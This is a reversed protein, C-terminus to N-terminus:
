QPPRPPLHDPNYVSGVIIPRDPDGGEFSVVVEWGIRPVIVTGSEAGAHLAGVRVWCSSDGSRSGTRDWHFQVKVRGYKDTLIEEGPPGAVVATQIGPIVPKPTARAPRFPLGAPICEFTNRYDFLGGVIARARHSVGTLVYPGDADFHRSLQFRHGATLGPASSGGAVVLAASAEEQMRIEVTRRGDELIKALEEPREAGGPDVGDFRGAYGGPFDYHELAEAGGAALRHTVGGALVSEQITAGVELSDAPLEFSHDRLMYKGARIEQTKVWSQVTGARAPLLTARAYPFPGALDPHGAPTNALVLTHGQPAHRFYYFIGEDELLRSVFAFDSENYQVVYTRKHFTGELRMEFAMGPAEGLVQAVIEPVSMEQFVRSTSRRTLLWLKPVIEARYHIVTDRDGQSFRSCMGNFYRTTGDPLAAAVIFEKGPMEDVPIGGASALDLRFSYLSSISERGQFGELVVGEMGPPGLLTLRVGQSGGIQAAAGGASLLLVLFTFFATRVPTM